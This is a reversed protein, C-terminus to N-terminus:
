IPAGRNDAVDHLLLRRWADALWRGYHDPDWGREDVLLIYVQPSNTAWLVDAGEKFTMDQRLSGTSALESILLHM